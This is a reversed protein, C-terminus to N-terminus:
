PTPAAAIVLSNIVVYPDSGGLDRLRLTLQGDSVTVAYTRSAWQGVGTTVSDVQAGELFVGMQDHGSSADGMQLTVSYSGNAVDVVFTGDTTFNFDRQLDDGVGRDRSDIAGALWGFGQAATYTTTETVQRYGTAVPSTATGFDFHDRASSLVTFTATYQDQPVEGPVGNGNQDMPHGNSDLIQPGVVLTYNGAASQSPFDVEYVTPSDMNVATPAIAGNPGTLSDVDALTFSGAQVASSFTLTVHDVPGSVQGAPASSVVRFSPSGPAVDLANLVANPDSGGLDRLRLSLQGDAVTVVYIRSAWQGAATTVSDVQAGELFVGMQDHPASADGLLLTVTYTGNAVDVAFTGDQTFNFDRQLDDGQGRDRSDISGSLWGFGQAQSYATAETVQTYGAAVPSTSTGFDFHRVGAALVTFSATYQDQPVEGPVGNGNQDMPRGSADLIQPGVVLTYAGPASQSPFDVEYVTPSDMNVATPTIAGNPGTLSDVDALTFSGAQVASSFTLTFHDVPGGGQGGPTSATVQFPATGPVVDLANLVANPDSGGLDRLRLTLQGDNVTVAYTRTLWQGAATTVSDVQTGELFVGMQDHPASADGMLATVLYSGNAVNAVFTGDQTFNFDRQKDDGVGRDRSAISGSLWGYGLAQSYTTAETVQTYGTAVPSTSTGFDFRWTPAASLQATATYRDQPDEGRVGNTNQDMPLGAMDLIQPGVVLTYTGSTSQAPFTVEYVTSSIKNVATPTIAGNPGTLSDVDALTFSNDQVGRTFTLTFRDITNGTGSTTNSAVRFPSIDLEGGSVTRGALSALPRATSVVRAIVQDDTLGPETTLLLAIGGAVHPTAMSTGSFFSYTNNPTTSLVNVGPAGIQVSNAGYNSFSALNGNSDTAAVAILNHLTVGNSTHFSAPYFPTTDNNSGNNGAACVFVENHTDAYAISDFLTQSFGGGGWSNNSVRAGHDAAYRIALAANTDSGNGTSDLFKLAMVQIKWNVGAVGVGNNGMAAMTGTTHSGHSHDDFPNNTNNVYNWGVLDNVLGDGDHDIGDSWGGQSSPKLIDGADIYGNGNLDTIKGPGINVPNNLDYFTIIGDGDVDTLNARISPPIEGQNIWINEYLDQHTYDIGTDIDAVVTTSKGTTVDWAQNARIGNTGNMGYLEGSTYRPDNPDLAVSVQHEPEVYTVGAQGQYSSALANVATPDGSLRYLNPISLSQLTLHEALASQQLWNPQPGPDPAFQILMAGTTTANFLDRRELAELLFGPRRSRQHPAASRKVM